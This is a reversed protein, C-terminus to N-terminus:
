GEPPTVTFGLSQLYEAALIARPRRARKNNQQQSPTAWRVNGPEYDGDNDIRDLTMGEPADGVAAHFVDFDEAWEPCMSIGRGGYNKYSPNKPNTCRQKISEWRKYSASAHLGHKRNTVKASDSRLCGCSKAGGARVRSGPLDVVRGCDCQFTWLAKGAASGARGTAVLRGFRKGTMDAVTVTDRHLCGCSKVQGSKLNGARVTASGGCECRCTWYTTGVEGRREVVTLRGFQQGVLDQLTAM